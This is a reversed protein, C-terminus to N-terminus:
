AGTANHYQRIIESLYADTDAPLEPEPAERVLAVKEEAEALTKEDIKRKAAEEEFKKKPKTIILATLYTMLNEKTPNLAYAKEFSSLGDDYSMMMMEAVGKNHWVSSLFVPKKEDTVPEEALLRYAKIAGVYKGGRVLADGKMKVRVSFPAKALTELRLSYDKLQEHTLYNIERFVPLVFGSLGANDALARDMVTALRVLKLETALWRTLVPNAFSADLLAPNHYMYYCIEEISFANTSINEIFYPNAATKEYCLRCSGTSKVNGDTPIGSGNKEAEGLKLTERYIRRGSPYFSGFGLDEAEICCSDKSTCSVTLRMRTTRAPRRPLGPLKMKYLKKNKGDMSNVHFVLDTRGDLIFECTRSAEFWNTGAAVLPYYAPNGLVLMEMGVKTRVLDGGLYIRGSFAHNEKRELIAYCAGKVYLNDGYYVHRNNRCLYQVSHVSWSRDFGSGSLLIGSYLDNKLCNKAYELFESDRKEPIDSLPIGRVQEPKVVSPRTDKNEALSVFAAEKESFTFLAIKRTWFDPRQSYSYYYFSELEDQILYQDKTFGINEFAGAANKVFNGSLQKTTLMIGSISKLIDRLGLLKLAERIFVALIEKPEMLKRDIMVSKTGEAIGYLGDICIGGKMKGFYDAELGFHWEDKGEMKTLATPFFFLNTGVKTPVSLPERTKRDYYCIQSNDKNLEFGILVNRVENM